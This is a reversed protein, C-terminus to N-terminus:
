IGIFNPCVEKKTNKNIHTKVTDLLQDLSAKSAIGPSIVPQTQPIQMQMAADTLIEFDADLTFVYGNNRRALLLIKIDNIMFPTATKWPELKELREYKEKREENSLTPSAISNTIEVIENLKKEQPTQSSEPIHPLGAYATCNKVMFKCYPNDKHTDPLGKIALTEWTTNEPLFPKSTTEISKLTIEQFVLDEKRPIFPIAIKKGHDIINQIATQHNTDNVHKKHADLEEIVVQPIHVKTDKRLCMGIIQGRLREPDINRNRLEACGKIDSQPTTAAVLTCTDLFIHDM